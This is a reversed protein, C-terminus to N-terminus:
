YDLEGTYVSPRTEDHLVRVSGGEGEEEDEQFYRDQADQTEQELDDYIENYDVSAYDFNTDKGALFREEMLRIFELRQEDRFQLEEETPMIPQNQQSPLIDLLDAEKMMVDDDGDNAGRLGKNGHEQYKENEDEEDEEDDDDEEEEEEFQEEELGRQYQVQKDAYDRDINSLIRQVLTIDNAFPAEKEQDPIYQGIYHEYLVPDRLQMTEDSFYSSNRLHRKLYEFRRNHVVTHLASKPKRPQRHGLSGTVEMSSTSADPSDGDAHLLRQLHFGVEYDDKLPQFSALTNQSLYRGWKTLFLGPDTDLIQAMKQVKAESSLEPEDRKLTKFPIVDLNRSIYSLVKDKGAQDM